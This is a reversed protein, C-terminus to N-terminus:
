VSGRMGNIAKLVPVAYDTAPGVGSAAHCAANCSVNYKWFFDSM